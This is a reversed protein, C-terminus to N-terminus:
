QVTRLDWPWNCINNAVDYRNCAVLAEVFGRMSPVASSTSLKGILSETPSRGAKYDTEILDLDEESVNLIQGVSHWNKKSQKELHDLKKQVHHLLIQNEHNHLQSMESVKCDSPILDINPQDQRLEGTLFEKQEDAELVDEVTETSGDRGDSGKMDKLPM